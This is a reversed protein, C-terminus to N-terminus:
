TASTPNDTPNRGVNESEEYAHSPVRQLMTAPM